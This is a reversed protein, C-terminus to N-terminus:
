LGFENKIKDVLVKALKYKSEISWGAIHPSLIVKNNKIL